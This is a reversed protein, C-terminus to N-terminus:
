LINFSNEIFEIGLRESYYNEDRKQAFEQLMKWRSRYFTMSVKTYGLRLLEQEIDLILEKLTKKEMYLAESSM